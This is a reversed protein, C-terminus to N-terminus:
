KKNITKRLKNVANELSQEPEIINYDEWFNEDYFDDVKDSLSYNDNFAYKKTFKLPIDNSVKTIVTEAVIAYNTSFLRKKWDCKFQIESKVYNLYSKDGLRKYTVLYSVEEPKFRLSFPKKKLIMQTVKNRDDMSLSFEIRSFTLSERDIYYKGYYLPYPLVVQPAFSVVYNQRDDIMVPMEMKYTYDGLSAPNLMLDPNKVVDLYISLNPGGLLKVVLTDNAKPSVIRRGKYVQVRDGEYNDTYKTKFIEVIAEAVNVYTSRKRVTERYFGSLLNEQNSFNDGIRSIAERIIMEPDMGLITIETLVNDRPSLYVVLNDINVGKVAIVESSYGIRSVEITKANLENKIKISFEGDKNSVTGINTGSVFINAYELTKNTTKDKVVGKVTYFGKEAQSLAPTVTLIPLLLSLLTALIKIRKKMDIQM